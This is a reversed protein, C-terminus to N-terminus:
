RRHVQRQQQQQQWLHACRPGPTYNRYHTPSEGRRRMATDLTTACNAVCSGPRAELSRRTIAYQWWWDRACHHGGWSRSEVPADWDVGGASGGRARQRALVALECQRGPCNWPKPPVNFHLYHLRKACSWKSVLLARKRKLAFFYEVFGQDSFGAGMSAWGHDREFRAKNPHHKSAHRRTTWDHPAAADGWGKAHIRARDCVVRGGCLRAVEEAVAMWVDWNPRVLMYATLVPTGSTQQALVEAQAGAECTEPDVARCPGRDDDGAVDDGCVMPSEFLFRLSGTVVGDVDLLLVREYAVLAFVYLKRLLLYEHFVDYVGFDMRVPRVGNTALATMMSATADEDVLAVFDADEVDGYRRVSKALVLAACLTVGSACTANSPAVSRPQWGDAKLSPRTSLM